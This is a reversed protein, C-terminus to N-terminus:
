QVNKIDSKVANKKKQKFLLSKYSLTGAILFDM